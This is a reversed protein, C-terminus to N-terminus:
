PKLAVANRDGKSAEISVKGTPEMGLKNIAIDKIRGPDSKAEIERQLEKSLEVAENYAKTTDQLHSNVQYIQAYRFIVIGAVCAVAVITILYILKEGIPISRKRQAPPKAPQQRQERIPQKEEVREPRLALNGYYAM